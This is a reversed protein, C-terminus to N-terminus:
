RNGEQLFRRLEDEYIRWQGGVRVANVKNQKVYRLSTQYTVGLLRTLQRLSVWNRGILTNLDVGELQGPRIDIESDLEEPSELGGSDYDPDVHNSISDDGNGTSM